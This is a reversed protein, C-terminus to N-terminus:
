RSSHDVTEGKSLTKVRTMGPDYSEMLNTRRMSDVPSPDGIFWRAMRHAETHVELKIVTIHRVSGGYLCRILTSGTESREPLSM